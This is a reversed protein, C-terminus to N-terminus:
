AEKLYSHTLKGLGSVRYAFNNSSDINLIELLNFSVLISLELDYNVDGILQSKIVTNNQCYSIITSQWRAIIYDGGVISGPQDPVENVALFIVRQNNTLKSVADLVAYKNPDKEHQLTGFMCFVDSLVKIKECDGEHMVRQLLNILMDLAEESEFWDKSVKQEGMTAMKEEIAKIAQRINKQQIEAYKDFLLHDLAGGITPIFSVASRLWGLGSPILDKLEEKVTKEDGNDVTDKIDDLQKQIIDPMKM